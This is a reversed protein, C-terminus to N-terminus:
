KKVKEVPGSSKGRSQVVEKSKKLCVEVFLEASVLASLVEKVPAYKFYPQLSSKCNHFTGLISELEQAIIKAKRYNKFDKIDNPM